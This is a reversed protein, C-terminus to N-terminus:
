CETLSLMLPFTLKSTAWVLFKLLNEIHAQKNGWEICAKHLVDLSQKLSCSSRAIVVLDDAYM